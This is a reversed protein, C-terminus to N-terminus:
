GCRVHNCGKAAILELDAAVRTAVLAILPTARFTFRLGRREKRGEKGKKTKKGNERGKREKKRRGKGRETGKFALLIWSRPKPLATLKRLPIQPQARYIAPDFKIPM